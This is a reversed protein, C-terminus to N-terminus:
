ASKPELRAALTQTITKGDRILCTAAHSEVLSDHCLRCLRSTNAACQAFIIGAKQPPIM